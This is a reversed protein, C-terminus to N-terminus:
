GGTAQLPNAKGAALAAFAKTLDAPAIEGTARGVVKGAADVFVFYPYAPLGYARAATSKTSDVMVPFPWGVGKLWSSPPYNDANANTGTAVTHITIGSLAGQNSLDVIRPVEAQCHPCWHAVFLIVEPKGTPGITIPSDDFTKGELTPITVGVAADTAGAAYPSLKGGTVTVPATEVSGSPSPSDDGGSAVVAVVAAVGLVVVVGTIVLWSRNSTSV